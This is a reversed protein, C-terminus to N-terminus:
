RGVYGDTPASGEDLGSPALEVVGNQAIQPFAPSEGLAHKEADYIPRTRWFM